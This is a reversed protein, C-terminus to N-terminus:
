RAEQIEQILKQVLMKSLGMVSDETGDIRDLYPQVKPHEVMLGGACYFIEGEEVLEDIVADPIPQFHITATDVGEVQLGSSTDTVVVSGVTQCPSRGYGRIFERAEAADVPKELIRDEHVVVQDGCLLLTGTAPPPSATELTKLLAAAKARAVALVLDAPQDQQRDGIAKEDIDPSMCSFELGMERLIAQRTASKSGLILRAPPTPGAALM